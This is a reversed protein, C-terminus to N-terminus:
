GVSGARKSGIGARALRGPRHLLTPVAEARLAAVWYVGLVSCEGGAVRDDM